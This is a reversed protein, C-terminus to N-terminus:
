IPQPADVACTGGRWSTRSPPPSHPLVVIKLCIWNSYPEPKLSSTLLSQIDATETDGSRAIFTTSAFASSSPMSTSWTFGVAVVLPLARVQWLVTPQSLTLAPTVLRRPRYHRPRIEQGGPGTPAPFGFVGSVRGGSCDVVWNYIYFVSYMSQGEKLM